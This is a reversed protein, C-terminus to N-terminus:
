LKIEKITQCLQYSFFWIFFINIGLHTYDWNTVVEQKTLLVVNAGTLFSFCITMCLEFYKRM